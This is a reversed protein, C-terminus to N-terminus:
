PEDFERRISEWAQEESTSLSGGPGTSQDPDIKSQYPDEAGGVMGTAPTVIGSLQGDVAARTRRPPAILPRPVSAGAGVAFPVVALVAPWPSGTLGVVALHAGIAAALGIGLIRPDPRTRDKALRFAIVLQAAVLVVLVALLLAVTTVHKPDM